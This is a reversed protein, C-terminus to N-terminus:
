MLTKDTCYKKILDDSSGKKLNTGTCKKPDNRCDNICKSYENSNIAKVGASIALLPILLFISLSIKKQLNKM